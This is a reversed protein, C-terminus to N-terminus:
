MSTLYGCVLRHDFISGSTGRLSEFVGVARFIVRRQNARARELKSDHLAQM